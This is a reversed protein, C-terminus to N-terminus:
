MICEASCSYSLAMTQATLLPVFREGMGWRHSVFILHGKSTKPTMTRRKDQMRPDNM